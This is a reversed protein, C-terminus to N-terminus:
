VSVMHDIALVAAAAQEATDAQDEEMVTAAVVTAGWAMNLIDNM